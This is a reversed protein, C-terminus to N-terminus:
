AVPLAQNLTGSLRSNLISPCSAGPTVPLSTMKYMMPMIPTSPASYLAMSNVPLAMRVMDM